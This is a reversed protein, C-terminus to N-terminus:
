YNSPLRFALVFSQRFLFYSFLCRFLFVLWSSSAPYAPSSYVLLIQLIQTNGDHGPPLLTTLLFLCIRPTRTIFSSPHILIEKRKGLQNGIDKFNQWLTNLSSFYENCLIGLTSSNNSFGEKSKTKRVRLHIKKPNTHEIINKNISDFHNQPVTQNPSPFKCQIHTNAQRWHLFFSFLFCFYFNNVILKIKKRPKRKSRRKVPAM